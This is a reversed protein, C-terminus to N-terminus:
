GDDAAQQIKWDCPRWLALEEHFDFSPCTEPVAGRANAFLCPGDECEFCAYVAMREIEEDMHMM